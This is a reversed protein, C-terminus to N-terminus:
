TAKAVPQGDFFSKTAAENAARVAEREDWIEIVRRRVKEAHQPGIMHGLRWIEHHRQEKTRLALTFLADAEVDGSVQVWAYPGPDPKPGKTRKDKYGM